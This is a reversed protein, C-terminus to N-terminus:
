HAMIGDIRKVRDLEPLIIERLDVEQNTSFIGAITQMEKRGEQLLRLSVGPPLAKARIFSHSGVSNCLVKPLPMGQHVSRTLWESEEQTILAEEAASSGGENEEM